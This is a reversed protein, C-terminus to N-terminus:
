KKAYKELIIKVAIDSMEDPSQEANIVKFRKSKKSLKDYEILQRKIEEKTLEQKRQYIVDADATLIFVVGPRPTLWVFFRRIFRPLKLRTRQPDVILDYSYRDFVSYLDRRADNRICKQWGIVYDLTYYTIRFFSSIPNAPKNRHPNTFDKDQEMVGAKEGVEGLNPLISPRFHYIHFKGDGLENVYYYNLKELLSDLFTTKGAGDPALVAFVRKYKRYFLIMRNFKQGVFYIRRWITKLFKERSVRRKIAADYKNTQSLISDFDHKEIKEIIEQGKNTGYIQTIVKGFSEKDNSMQEEIMKKYIDKLVPKKYGFTKHALLIAADWTDELVFFGKYEKTHSYAEDFDVIEYGKTNLGKILDIHIGTNNKISMGHICLTYGIKSEEYYEIGNANFIDKLIGKVYKVKKPEIVIDIDKSENVEPLGKYNRLVFYKINESNLKEILKTFISECVKNWM